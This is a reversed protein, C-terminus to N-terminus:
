GGIANRHHTLRLGEPDRDMAVVDIRVRDCGRQMLAHAARVLREQKHRDVSAAAGGFDRHSRVRVEVIVRVPGDDAVLDVEVGGLRLNRAIVQYGILELYAAALAEAARGRDQPAAM